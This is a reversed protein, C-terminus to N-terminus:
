NRARVGRLAPHGAPRLPRRRREAGSLRLRERGAELHLHGSAGPSRPCPGRPSPAARDTGRKRPAARGRPAGRRVPRRCRRRRAAYRDREDRGPGFRQLAALRPGALVLQVHTDAPLAGLLEGLERRALAMREGGAERHQMLLSGDVVYIRGPSPTGLGSAPRALSLVLLILALLQLLLLLPLVPRGLRWSPSPADTALERWPVLSSVERSPPQRRRLHLLVLPVTLLLGALAWASLLTM